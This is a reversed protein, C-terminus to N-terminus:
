IFCMSICEDSVDHRLDNNLTRLISQFQGDHTSLAYIEDVVTHIKRSRAWEISSKMMEPPYITGLPNNPNTILLIAVRLGKDEAWTAAQELDDVTPGITPDKSHVPVAICGANIRLDGDFAAYYPAPILVADGEEALSQALHSLLSSAGSGFAVHNPQILNLADRVSMDRDEPYMFHKATYYYYVFILLSSSIKTDCVYSMM